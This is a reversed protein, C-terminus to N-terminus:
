NKIIRFGDKPIAKLQKYRIPVRQRTINEQRQLQILYSKGTGTLTSYESGNIRVNKTKGTFVRYCNDDPWM